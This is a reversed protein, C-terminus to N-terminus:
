CHDLGWTSVSIFQSIMEWVSPDYSSGDAWVLHARRPPQPSSPPCLQSLGRATGPGVRACGLGYLLRIRSSGKGGLVEHVVLQELGQKLCQNAVASDGPSDWHLAQPQPYLKAGWPQPNLSPLLVQTGGTASCVQLFVCSTLDQHVHVSQFESGQKTERLFEWSGRSRWGEQAM